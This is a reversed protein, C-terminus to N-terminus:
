KKQLILTDGSIWVSDSKYIIKIFREYTEPIIISGGTPFLMPEFRSDPDKILIEYLGDSRVSDVTFYDYHDVLEKQGTCAIIVGMLLAIVWFLLQELIEM